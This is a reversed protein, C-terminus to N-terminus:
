QITKKKRTLFYMLCGVLLGWFAGGIGMFALGSGAFLFTIAAAERNNVDSLAAYVAASFSGLLALGAIAEILISPVLTILLVAVGAIAGLVLYVMGAVIASWYRRNREKHAEPSCMMAATIAALNIGHAGFPAALLAFVGTNMILPSAKPEYGAARLVAIGPVNQSAMTVVFLPIGISILAQAEFVPMIWIIQPIISEQLQQAFEDPIGIWWIVIPVLVLLAAPVALYRNIRGVLWWTLLLPTALWADAALAHIPAMCLSLLVGALMANALSTPIAEILRGLPRFWGAIVLLLASFIFAGVAENFSSLTEASSVLLAAGPTSWAVGIPMRYRVALIIGSIGMGISLAVLGSTAQEASAGAANLGQLIIAFSSTFGVIASLIGMGVAQRSLDKLRPGLPNSKATDSIPKTVIILLLLNRSPLLM